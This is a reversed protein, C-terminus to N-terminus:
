EANSTSRMLPSCSVQKLLERIIELLKTQDITDFCARVDMKVFYLEPRISFRLRLALQIFKYVYMPAKPNNDTLRAKYNRLQVYVEEHSTASAGLLDSQKM